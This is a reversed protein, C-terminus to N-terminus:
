PLAAALEEIPHAPKGEAVDSDGFQTRCSAGPTTLRDGPSDAVQDFVVDGVAVSLDYHEAEYGFSGAMGCCSSDLEDVDFGVREMVRAAHHDTQQAKQHCHGHYTLTAGDPEWDVGEDLRFADIYEMIGYTNTALVPVRDDDPLLDAYEDQLMVADSPEVFVVDWGDRVLPGLADIVAMARDRALDLLGNSYASRGTSGVDTSVEVHVGATELVRLAATGPEPDVYNTTPDPVLVARRGAMSEPISPERGAVRSRFPERTFTPLSRESAIGVTRELLSRALDSESVWNSVPAALSGLRSVSDVHGFVRDRLSVGERQHREHKVEVKLKALDVGTPCDAKCGKCGLCLDLVDDTFRDSTLEDEPLDGSIAARLLNARGRTSQIEEGTARYTPCMVDSETQRCTGCGNCLEVLHDFGGEDEFSQVTTPEISQYEPGYRLNERMDTPDDERYVVVGPNLRWDPDAASKIAKFGEWLAEGYMKPNFQTRALGDGHEGSFSGHRELVLDTVDESIEQMTEVDAADKLNLIPRIHLTGVGAHAFFAASTGHSALVDEFAAVYDALEAPPVTADEIFPYPKPDGELSMLLPIAAKRLKWLDDQRDGDYAEIREFAEGGDFLDDDLAAVAGEFDGVMESDFEVMLAAGTGTPIPEAYQAYQTSGEALSFVEEDMLEVASVPHELAVPVARVAELLDEFCYLALATEEPRSVLDLTASVVTGLTGEAGVFLTSLDVCREGNENTYVVADLNYGSVVRKLDPYRADIEDANDEVVSRVTRYLAAELSSGETAVRWEESDLVIERTEMLSGDALVVTLGAVYDQTIGYRVSHAGTSNNGVMGGITARNASAPDPAFKLGHDRLVDNLHDLVVGPGVTVQREDPDVAHIEDMHRSLDLVVADKGTAQGALSSGAGRPVVAADEQAAIRHVARVDDVTEPFVVGAPRAQYVSGDTAYLIQTYEDFRVAGAVADRLRRALDAYAPDDEYRHRGSAFDPTTTDAGEPAREADM